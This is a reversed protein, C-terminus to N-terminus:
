GDSDELWISVPKAAKVLEAQLYTWGKLNLDFSNGSGDLTLLELYGREGGYARIHILDGAQIGEVKLVKRNSTIPIKPGVMPKKTVMLIPMGM